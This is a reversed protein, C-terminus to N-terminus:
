QGRKFNRNSNLKNLKIGIERSSLITIILPQFQLRSQLHLPLRRAHLRSFAVEIAQQVIDGWICRWTYDSMDVPEADLYQLMLKPATSRPYNDPSVLGYLRPLITGQLGRCHQFIEIERATRERIDVQDEQRLPPGDPEEFRPEPLDM